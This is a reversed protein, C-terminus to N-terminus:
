LKFFRYKYLNYQKHCELRMFYPLGLINKLSAVTIVERQSVYIHIREPLTSQSDHFHIFKLELRITIYKNRLPVLETTETFCYKVQYFVITSM